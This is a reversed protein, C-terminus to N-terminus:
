SVKTVTLLDVGDLNVLVHETMIVVYVMIVILLVARPVVCEMTDLMVLKPHFINVNQHFVTSLVKLSIHKWYLYKKSENCMDGLYGLSCGNNCFGTIFNCTDNNLCHGSCRGKCNIGFMENECGGFSM